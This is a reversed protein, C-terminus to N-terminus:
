HDGANLMGQRRLEAALFPEDEEISRLTLTCSWYREAARRRTTCVAAGDLHLREITHEIAAVRAPPAAPGVVTKFDNAFDIAFWGVGIEFPDLVESLASKVSNMYGCCLRYNSWTYAQMPDTANRLAVFHDTTPTEVPEIYRALYACFGRYADHLHPMARRWYDYDRLMAPTVDEVRTVRATIRKGPWTRLPELGALQRIADEGREHVDHRFDYVPPEPQPQPLVPIM